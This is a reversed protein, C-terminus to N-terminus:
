DARENQNRDREEKQPLYALRMTKSSTPSKKKEREGKGASTQTEKAVGSLSPTTERREEDRIDTRQTGKKTKNKRETAELGPQVADNAACGRHHMERDRM